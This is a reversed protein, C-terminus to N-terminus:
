SHTTSTDVSASAIVAAKSGEPIRMIRTAVYNGILASSTGGRADTSEGTLSFHRGISRDVDDPSQVHTRHRSRGLYDRARYVRGPENALSQEHSKGIVKLADQRRDRADEPDKRAVEVAALNGLDIGILNEWSFTCRFREDEKVIGV